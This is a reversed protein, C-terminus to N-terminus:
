VHCYRSFIIDWKMKKKILREYFGICIGIMRRYDVIQKGIYRCAFVRDIDREINECVENRRKERDELNLRELTSYCSQSSWRSVMDYFAFSNSDAGDIDQTLPSMTGSNEISGKTDYRLRNCVRFPLRHLSYRADVSRWVDAYFLPFEIGDCVHLWM